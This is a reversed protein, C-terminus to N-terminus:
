RWSDNPFLERLLEIYFNKTRFFLCSLNGKCAFERLRFSLLLLRKTQLFFLEIEGKRKKEAVPSTQQGVPCDSTDRHLISALTFCACDYHDSM